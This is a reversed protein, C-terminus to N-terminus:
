AALREVAGFFDRLEFPKAHFEVKPQYSARMIGAADPAGSILLFPTQDGRDRLCDLLEVGSMGELRYDSVILNFHHERLMELANEASQAPCVKEIGISNLLTTLTCLVRADDEVVLVSSITQM